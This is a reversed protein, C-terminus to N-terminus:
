KEPLSTKLRLAHIEVGLLGRLAEKVRRHQDLLSLGEFAKSVIVVRYHGGGPDGSEAFETSNAARRPFGRSAAGAHGKHRESDDHVELHLPQFQDRLLKEIKQLTTATM